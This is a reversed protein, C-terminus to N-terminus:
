TSASGRSTIRSRPLHNQDIWAHIDRILQQIRTAMLLSAQRCQAPTCERWADQLLRIDHLLGEQALITATPTLRHLYARAKGRDGRAVSQLFLHLQVPATEVFSQLVEQLLAPDHLFALARGYNFESRNYPCLDM